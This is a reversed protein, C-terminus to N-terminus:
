AAARGSREADAGADATEPGAATRPPEHRWMIGGRGTGLGVRARYLGTCRCQCYDVRGARMRPRRLVGPRSRQGARRTATRALCLAPRSCTSPAGAWPRSPRALLRHRGVGSARRPHRVRGHRHRARLHTAAVCCCRRRTRRPAARRHRHQARTHSRSVRGGGRRAAGTGRLWARPRESCDRDIRACAGPEGRARAAHGARVSGRRGGLAGRPRLLAQERRPREARRWHGRWGTDGSRARASDISIGGGRRSNMGAPSSEDGIRYLCRGVLAQRNGGRGGPTAQM